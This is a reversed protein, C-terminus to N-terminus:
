TFDFSGFDIHDTLEDFYLDDLDMLESPEPHAGGGDDGGGGGGGTSQFEVWHSTETSGSGGSIMFQEINYNDEYPPNLFTDLHYQIEQQQDSMFMQRENTDPFSTPDPPLPQTTTTPACHNNLNANVNKKM